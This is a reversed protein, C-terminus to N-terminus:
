GGKKKKQRELLRALIMGGMAQCMSTSPIVVGAAVALYIDVYEMASEWVQDAASIIMAIEKDTPMKPLM